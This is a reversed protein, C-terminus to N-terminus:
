IFRRVIAVAGLIGLQGIASKVSILKLSTLHSLVWYSGETLWARKLFFAVLTADEVPHDVMGM